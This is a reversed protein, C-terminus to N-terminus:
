ARRHPRYAVEPTAKSGISFIIYTSVVADVADYEGGGSNGLLPFEVDSDLDICRASVTAYRRRMCYTRGNVEYEEYRRKRWDGRQLKEGKEEECPIPRREVRM